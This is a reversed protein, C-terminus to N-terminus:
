NNIKKKMFYFLIGTVSGGIHAIHSVGDLKSVSFVEILFLFLIIYKVKIKIILFLNFIENKFMFGYLTMISWIAGSAGVVSYKSLINHSLGAIIGSVLYIIIFKKSGLEKEIRQGLLILVFMNSFLHLFSGHLFSYSLLQYVHFNKNLIPYLVFNEILNSNNSYLIYSIIYIIINILLIYKVTKTM